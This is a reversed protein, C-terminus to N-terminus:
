HMGQVIMALPLFQCITFLSSNGMYGRYNKKKGENEYYM